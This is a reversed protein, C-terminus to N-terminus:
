HKIMFRWLVKPNPTFIMSVAFAALAPLVMAPTIKRRWISIIMTAMLGGFVAYFTFDFLRPDYMSSYKLVLNLFIGPVMIDLTALSQKEGESNRPIIVMLPARSERAVTSLLDIVFMWFLDFVIMGILFVVGVQYSVSQCRSAVVFISSFALVNNTFWNGWLEHVLGFSFSAGLAIYTLVAEHHYFIDSFKVTFIDLLVVYVAAACLWVPVHIAFIEGLIDLASRRVEVFSDDDVHATMNFASLLLNMLNTDALERYIDPADDQFVDSECFSSKRSDEFLRRHLRSINSYSRSRLSSDADPTPALKTIVDEVKDVTFRPPVPAPPPTPSNDEIDDDDNERTSDKVTDQEEINSLLKTLRKAQETLLEDNLSFSTRRTTDGTRSVKRSPVTSGARSRIKVDEVLKRLQQRRCVDRKTGIYVLFLFGSLVLPFCIAYQFDVFIVTKTDLEFLYITSARQCAQYLVISSLIVITTSALARAITDNM